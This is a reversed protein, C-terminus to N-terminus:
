RKVRLYGVVKMSHAGQIIGNPNGTHIVKDDGIYIGVHNPRTDVYFTDYMIIMGRKLESKSVKEFHSSHAGSWMSYTTPRGTTPYGQYGATRFCHSVFGSCDMGSLGNGGWRYPLKMDRVRMAEAIVKEIATDEEPEEPEPEPATVATPEAEKAKGYVYVKTVVNDTNVDREIGSLLDDSSITFGEEGELRRKVINIRFEPELPNNFEVSFYFEVDFAKVIERIRELANQHSSFELLRKETSENLGIKFGTARLTENLYYAINQAEEPTDMSHVTTNNLALSTDEAYIQIHNTNELVQLITMLVPVNQVNRFRLYNGEKVHRIKDAHGQDMVRKPISIDLTYVGGNISTTLADGFYHLGKGAENTVYCLRNFDRDLIEFEIM